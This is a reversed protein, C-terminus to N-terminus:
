EGHKHNRLQDLTGCVQKQCVQCYSCWDTREENFKKVAAEDVVVRNQRM